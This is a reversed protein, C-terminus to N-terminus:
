RCTGPASTRHSSREIAGIHRLFQDLTVDFAGDDVGSPLASRVGNPENGGHPNRLRVTSRAGDIRALAPDPASPDLSITAGSSDRFTTQEIPYAHRAYIMRQDRPEDDGTTQLDVLLERLAVSSAPARTSDLQPWAGERTAHAAAARIEADYRELRSASVRSRQALLRRLYEFEARLAPSQLWRESLVQSLSLSVRERLTDRSISASLDLQQGPSGGRALELVAARNARVLDATPSFSTGITSQAPAARDGYFAESVASAFGGAHLIDYGARPTGDTNRNSAPLQGPALQAGGYQGHAEAFRAYARELLSAWSAIAYRERRHVELQGARIQSFWQTDILQRRESTAGVRGETGDAAIEFASERGVTVLVPIHAGTAPDRRYFRVTVTNRDFGVFMSRVYSPDDRVASLTASLLWCSGINGQNVDDAHPMDGIFPNDEARMTVIPDEMTGRFGSVVTGGSEEVFVPSPPRSSLQRQPHDADFLIRVSASRSTGAGTDEVHEVPRPRYERRAGRPPTGLGPNGTLVEPDRYIGGPARGSVTVQQGRGALSAARDADSEAAERGLQPGETNKQQLVHAVEHAATELAPTSERFFIEDENAAARAGISRCAHEAELQVRIFSLDVGFCAELESRFPLPAGRGPSAATVQEALAANGWAWGRLSTEEDSSTAPAPESTASPANRRANM